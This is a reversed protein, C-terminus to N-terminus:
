AFSIRITNSSAVKLQDKNANLFANCTIGEGVEMPSFSLQFDFALQEEPLVTVSVLPKIWYEGSEKGKIHGEPELYCWADKMLNGNSKLSKLREATLVKGQMKIKHAPSMKLCLIPQSIPTGGTNKFICRCTASLPAEGPPPNEHHLTYDLLLEASQKEEIQMVESSPVLMKSNNTGHDQEKNLPVPFLLSWPIDNDEDNSKVTEIIGMAIHFALLEIHQKAIKEEEQGTISVKLKIVNSSFLSWKRKLKFKCKKLTHDKKVRNIIATQCLEASYELEIGYSKADKEVNVKFDLISGAERDDDRVEIGLAKLMSTLHILLASAENSSKGNLQLSVQRCRGEKFAYLIKKDPDFSINYGKQEFYLCYFSLNEAEFNGKREGKLYFDIM